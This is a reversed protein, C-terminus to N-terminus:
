RVIEVDGSVTRIRYPTGGEGIRATSEKHGPSSEVNVAIDGRATVDGSVSSFTLDGNSGQPINLHFDGSVSQGTFSKVPAASDLTVTVDGSVTQFEMAGGGGSFTVNGSVSSISVNGSVGTVDVDGSVTSVRSLNSARPLTVRYIVEVDSGSPYSTTIVLRNDRMEVGSRVANMEAANGGRKFVQVHAQERDWTEIVVNGRQNEIEVSSGPAFAWTQENTLVAGDFIESGSPQTVAAPERLRSARQIKRVVSAFVILFILMFVVFGGGLVWVWRKGSAPPQQVPQQWPASLEPSLYAPTTPQAPSQGFSPGHTGPLPQTLVHEQPQAPTVAVAAGCKRCFRAGTNLATGCNTCTSAM